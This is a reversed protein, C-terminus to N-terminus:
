ELLKGSDYLHISIIQGKSDYSVKKGHLQHNKIGCKFELRGNPYYSEYLEWRRIQSLTPLGNLTDPVLIDNIIGKGLLFGNPYYKKYFGYGKLAYVIGKEAIKGNPHWAMYKGNEQNNRYTIFRQKNGLSDYLLFTGELEGISNTHYSKLKMGNSYYITQKFLCSSFSGCILLWKAIKM